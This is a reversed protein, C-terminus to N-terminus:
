LTNSERGHSVKELLDMYKFGYVTDDIDDFYFSYNGDPNKYHPLDDPTVNIKYCNVMRDYRIFFENCSSDPVIRFGDEGAVQIDFCVKNGLNTESRLEHVVISDLIIDKKKLDFYKEHFVEMYPVKFLGKEKKM